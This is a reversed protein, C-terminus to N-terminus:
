RTTPKAPRTWPDARHLYHEPHKRSLRLAVRAMYQGVKEGDVFGRKLDIGLADAPVPSVSSECINCM